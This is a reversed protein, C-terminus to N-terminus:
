KGEAKFRWCRREINESVASSRADQESSFVPAMVLSSGCGGIRASEYM